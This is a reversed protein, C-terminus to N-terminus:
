AFFKNWIYRKRSHVLFCSEPELRFLGNEVSLDSQTLIPMFCFDIQTQEHEEIIRTGLSLAQAFFFSAHHKM